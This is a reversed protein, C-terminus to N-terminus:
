MNAFSKYICTDEKKRGKLDCSPKHLFIFSLKKKTQYYNNINKAWQTNKNLRQELIFLDQIKPFLVRAFGDTLYKSLNYLSSCKEINELFGWVDM